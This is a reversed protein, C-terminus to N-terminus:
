ILYGEIEDTGLIDRQGSRYRVMWKGNPLKIYFNSYPFENPKCYTPSYPPIAVGTLATDPEVWQKKRLRHHHLQTPSERSRYSSTSSASSANSLTSPSRTDLFSLQPQRQDHQHPKIWQSLQGWISRFSSKSSSTSSSHYLSPRQPHRM